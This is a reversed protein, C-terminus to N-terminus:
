KASSGSISDIMTSLLTIRAWGQAAPAGFFFATLGLLGQPATSAAEAGFDVYTDIPQAIRQAKDQSSALPVVDGLGPVQHGLEVKLVQDSIRGIIRIMKQLENCFLLFSLRNNRGRGSPVLGAVIILMGIPLPMQDLAEDVFDLM